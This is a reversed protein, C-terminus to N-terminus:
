PAVCLDDIYITGSTPETYWEFVIQIKNIAELDIEEGPLSGKLFAFLPITVAGWQGAPVPTYAEVDQYYRRYDGEIPTMLWVNPTEGGAAGRVYFTLSGYGSLDMGENIDGLVIEWGAYSNPEGLVSFDLELGQGTRGGSVVQASM